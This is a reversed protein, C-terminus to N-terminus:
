PEKLAKWVQMYSHDPDDNNWRDRWNAGKQFIETFETVLIAMSRFQDGEMDKSKEGFKGYIQKQISKKM